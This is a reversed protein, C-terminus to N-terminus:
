IMANIHILSGKIWRECAYISYFGDMQSVGGKYASYTEDKMQRINWGKLKGKTYKKVTIM